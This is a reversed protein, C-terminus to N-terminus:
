SDKFNEYYKSEQTGQQGQYKSGPKQGYDEIIDGEVREFKIQCIKMGPYVKIPRSARLELVLSGEFGSDIFGAPGIVIDLGLRGLSSKAQVQACINTHIGLAKQLLNRKVSKIGITEVCSYLYVENPYLVYGEPGMTITIPEMKSKVDLPEEYVYAGKQRRIYKFYVWSPVDNLTPVSVFNRPYVKLENGLRLDVSNPNLLKMDFPDIKIVGKKMEKLITHDSLIM